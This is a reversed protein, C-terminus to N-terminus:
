GPSTRPRAGEIKYAQSGRVESVKRKIPFDPMDLRIKSELDSKKGKRKREKGRGEGGKTKREKKSHSPAELSICLPQVSLLLILM